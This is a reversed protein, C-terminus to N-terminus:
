LKFSCMETIDVFEINKVNQSGYKTVNVNVIIVLCLVEHIYKDRNCLYFPQSIKGSLMPPWAGCAGRQSRRHSVREFFKCRFRAIDSSQSISLTCTYAYPGIKELSPQAM